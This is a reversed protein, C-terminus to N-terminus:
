LIGLEDLLKVVRLCEAIGSTGRISMVVSLTEFIEEKTAGADLAKHTQALICNTCGIGLGIGLAILRKTKSSLVGDEYVESRMQDQHIKLKPRAQWFKEISENRVRYSEVQSEM